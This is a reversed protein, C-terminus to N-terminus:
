LYGKNILVIIQNYMNDLYKQFLMFSKQPTILLSTKLAFETDLISPSRLTDFHAFFDSSFNDMSRIIEKHFDDANTVAKDKDNEILSYFKTYIHEFKQYLTADNKLFKYNKNLKRTNLCSLGYFVDATKETYFKSHM